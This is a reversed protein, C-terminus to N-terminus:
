SHNAAPGISQHVHEAKDKDILPKAEPEPEQALPPSVREAEAM